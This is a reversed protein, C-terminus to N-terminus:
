DKSVPLYIRKQRAYSKYIRNSKKSSCIKELIYNHWEYLTGFVIQPIIIDLILPFLVFLIKIGVQIWNGTFVFTKFYDNIFFLIIVLWIYFVALKHGFVYLISAVTELLVLLWLIIHIFVNGIFRILAALVNLM